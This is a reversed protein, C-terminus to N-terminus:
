RHRYIERRHGIEIVLVLLAEGLPQEDDPAVVNPEAVKPDPQKLQVLALLFNRKSFFISFPM